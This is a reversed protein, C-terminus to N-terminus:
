VNRVKERCHKAVVDHVSVLVEPLFNWLKVVVAIQGQYTRDGGQKVCRPKYPGAGEVFEREVADVAGEQKEM